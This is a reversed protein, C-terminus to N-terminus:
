DSKHSLYRHEHHYISAAVPLRQYIILDFKSLSNAMLWSVSASRVQRPLFDLYNEPTDSHQTDGDLKM